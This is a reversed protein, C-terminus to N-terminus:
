RRVSQMRWVYIAASIAVMVAPGIVFGVPWWVDGLDILTGPLAGMAAAVTSWIISSSINAVEFRGRGMRAMAAVGAIPARLPGSFYGILIAAFGYREFLGRARLILEPRTRLLPLTEIRSGLRLGIAYSASMGLAAGCAGWAVFTWGVAGAGALSGMGTIIAGAPVILNTGLLCGLFAVVFIVPGAVASHLQILAFIQQVDPM